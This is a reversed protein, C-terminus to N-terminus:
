TEFFFFLPSNNEFGESFKVDFDIYVQREMQVWALFAQRM